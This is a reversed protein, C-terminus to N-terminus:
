RITTNAMIAVSVAQPSDPPGPPTTWGPCFFANSSFPMLNEKGVTETVPSPAFGGGGGDRVASELQGVGYRRLGAPGHV